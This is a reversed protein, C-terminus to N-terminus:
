FAPWPVSPWNPNPAPMKADAELRSIRKKIALIESQKLYLTLDLDSDLGTALKNLLTLESDALSDGAWQWLVTRLKNEEHFTVGHDCGFLEGSATPLLHGIKRDTNNIIADFFAMARLDANNTSFFSGLDVTEDIDIWEQVMGEGYPGDRLITLPVLNLGLYESVLFAAYERHALAGDPFDWLPREGAIPKYIANMSRDEYTLSAFLTANSADVLRGTVVLLGKSLLHFKDDTVM